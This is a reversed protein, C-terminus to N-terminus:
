DNSEYNEKVLQRQGAQNPKRQRIQPPKLKKERAALQGLRIRLRTEVGFMQSGLINLEDRIGVIHRAIESKAVALEKALRGQSKHELLDPRIIYTVALFRRFAFKNRTVGAFCFVLLFSIVGAVIAVALNDSDTPGEIAEWDFNVAAHFDKLQERIM